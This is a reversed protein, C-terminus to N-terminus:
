RSGQLIQGVAREAASHMARRVCDAQGEPTSATAGTLTVTASSEFQYAHAPLSTVFISVQAQTSDGTTRLAQINANFLHGRPGAGRAGRAGSSAGTPADTTIEAHERLTAAIAETAATTVADGGAGASNAVPAIGVYARRGEGQGAVAGLRSGVRALLRPHTVGVGLGILATAAAMAILSRPLVHTHSPTKVTGDTSRLVAMGDVGGSSRVTFFPEGPAAVFQIQSTRGNHIFSCDVTYRGEPGRGGLRVGATGDHPLPTTAVTPGLPLTVRSLLEIETYHAFPFRRLQPLHSISQAVGGDGMTGELVLVEIRPAAPPPPNPHQAVRVEDRRTHPRERGSRAWVAPAAIMVALTCALTRKM